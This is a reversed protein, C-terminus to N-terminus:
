AAANGVEAATLYILQARTGFDTWYPIAGDESTVFIFNGFRGELHAYPLLPTDAVCRMGAVLQRDARDLDVAMVGGAEKLRLAYRTGDLRITLAQNPVPSLPVVISM